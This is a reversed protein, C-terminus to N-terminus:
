APRSAALRTTAVAALALGWLQLGRQHDIIQYSEGSPGDPLYM